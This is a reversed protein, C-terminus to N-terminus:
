DSTRLYHDYSNYGYHNAMKEYADSLAHGYKNSLYESAANIEILSPRRRANTRNPLKGPSIGCEEQIIEELEQEQDTEQIEYRDRINLTHQM